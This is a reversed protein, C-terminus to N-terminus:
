AHSAEKAPPQPLTSLHFIGFLLVQLRDLGPHARGQFRAKFLLLEALHILGILGGALWLGQAFPPGFPKFLNVLVALWFLLVLGKGLGLFVKM